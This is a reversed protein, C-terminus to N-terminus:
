RIDACKYRFEGMEAGQHRFRLVCFESGSGQYRSPTVRYFAPTVDVFDLVETSDGAATEFLVQFDTREDFIVSLTLWSHPNPIIPGCWFHSDPSATFLELPMRDPDQFRKPMPVLEITIAKGEVMRVHPRDQDGEEAGSAAPVSFFPVVLLGAMLLRGVTHLSQTSPNVRVPIM